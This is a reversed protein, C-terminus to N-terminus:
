PVAATKGAVAGGSAFIQLEHISWFQGGASGTQTIRIFRAKQPAFTIDTLLSTGKGTAVPKSWAQGDDSLEVKYGRPYDGPSKATDLALGAVTTESPLEIQFWMGQAQDAKSEYRTAPNGDAALAAGAGNHSATLKWEKRNALPQPLSPKLTEITWPETRTVSAARLRAVDNTTVLSAQNGFSTRVYSAVSAIWADDNSEMPVMLAVYDKGNVPGTLGKLLVNIVGDRHGNITKSGALSPAQMSGKPAGEIPAGKGDPAHCAFCLEKYIAAGRELVKKEAATYQVGGGPNAPTRLLLASIEKVGRAPNSALATEALAAPEPWKLLKATLMTQMVVGTDSDKALAVVDALLNTEGLKVLTESVRLATSRVQPHADKLKERVLAPELAGLGELTWLAHQRALYEPHSRAMTALAPAVSKDGGLVLLKQATDRWWGNPHALHGVLQAPKESLMRPQPGPKFDKHALRWIRGRGANKDLQYKEVVTRLYSGPRVWNGEQIIGRYMDVIYLTGDPATAGNVPRFNADTSRLFESKEHPNSLFTLGERVDVKTRRVLRGVPEGFFFNGRVEAPLRDGRFIEGGCTATFHNLTADEPRHRGHGGQVDELGMAPWVVSYGPAFEDKTSYSGYLIPIQFNLPGREGGANCVWIKGHDDQSIGWQGGNGGTAERIMNTGVLRLRYANVASYMWNDLGWILGSPQHELNGGQGGGKMVLIKSDAVGDGDTDRYIHLDKTDTEGVLLGDALPLIMRPLVLKDIFVTHQDFKGDGKSSYHMSVRSLPTHQNKGDIEQMYTRMEAVFLRGNGDFACMVPEKIDPDALVPELRYGEPLQFTKLEDEVSLFPTPGPPPLPSPKDAAAANLITFGAGALVATLIRKM